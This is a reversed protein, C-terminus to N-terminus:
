RNERIYIAMEKGIFIRHNINLFDYPVKFSNKFKDMAEFVSFKQVGNLTVIIRLISCADGKCDGRSVRNIGDITENLEKISHEAIFKPKVINDYILQVEAQEIEVMKKELEIGKLDCYSSNADKICGENNLLYSGFNIFNRELLKKNIGIMVEEEKDTIYAFNPLVGEAGGVARWSTVDAAAAFWFNDKKRAIADAWRYWDNRESITKYAAWNKNVINRRAQADYIIKWDFEEHYWGSKNSSGHKQEYYVWHGICKIKTGTKPNIDWGIVEKKEADKGIETPKNTVCYSLLADKDRQFLGWTYGPDHIRDWQFKWLETGAPYDMLNKSAGQALGIYDIFPHDLMFIGHGLEHAATSAIEEKPKLVSSSGTGAFIFGFQEQHPMKGLLDAGTSLAPEPLIFLYATTPDPTQNNLTSIYNQVIAREEGTYDNSFAPSKSDQLRGDKDLDWDTSTYTPATTVTFTVGIQGYVKDLQSKIANQYDAPLANKVPILVLNFEKPAYSPLLLKGVTYKTAGDTYVAYIEQADGAPGGALTLSSNNADYNYEVVKEGVKPNNVFKIKSKDLNSSINLKVKVPVNPKAFQIPVRYQDSTTSPLLEYEREVVQKDRYEFKWEDFALTTNDPHKSFTVKGKVLNATYAPPLTNTPTNAPTYETKNVLTGIPTGNSATINGNSITIAPTNAPNGTEQPGKGEIVKGVDNGGAFYKNAENLVAEADAIVENVKGITSNMENQFKKLQNSVDQLGPLTIAEVIIKGGCFRDNADLTVNEFILKAEAYNAYPILCKGTTPSNPIIQFGAAMFSIGASPKKQGCTSLNFQIDTDTKGCAFDGGSSPPLPTTSFSALDSKPGPKSLNSNCFPTLEIEYTTNPQLNPITAQVKTEPLSPLSIATNPLTYWITVPAAINRYRLQYNIHSTAKTWSLVLETNAVSALALDSVKQCAGDIEKPNTLNFTARNSPSSSLGGCSVKIYYVYEANANLGTLTIRNKNLKEKKQWNAEPETQSAKLTYFLTYEEAGEIKDWALNVSTTTTVESVLNVPPFCDATRLIVPPPLFNNPTFNGNTTSSLNASCHYTISYSYETAKDLLLAVTSTPLNLSQNAYPPQQATAKPQFSFDYKQYIENGAWTLTFNTNPQSSGLLVKLDTAAPPACVTGQFGNQNTFTAGLKEGNSCTAYLKYVLNPKPEFTFNNAYITNANTVISGNDEKITYYQASPMFEWSIRKKNELINGNETADSVVIQQPGKECTKPIYSQEGAYVVKSKNTAGCNATIYIQYPKNNEISNPNELQNIALQYEQAPNIPTYTYSLDAGVGNAPKLAITYNAIADPDNAIPKASLYWSLNINGNSKEVSTKAMLPPPCIKKYKFTYVESIGNNGIYPKNINGNAEILSVRWAYEHNPVLPLDAQTLQYYPFPVKANVIVMGGKENALNTNMLAQNNAFANSPDLATNLEHNLDILQFQYQLVGSENPIYTQLHLPTWQFLINQIPMAEIEATNFPLNLLPAKAYQVWVSSAGLFPNSVPLSIDSAEVAVVAIYYLAEPMKISTNSSPQNDLIINESKILTEIQAPLLILPKNKELNVELVTTSELNPNVNFNISMDASKVSLGLKVKLSEKTPDTLIVKVQMRGLIAYDDLYPSYPPFVTTQVQVPFNFASQASSQNTFLVVLLMATMLSMIEKIRFINTTYFNAEKNKNLIAIFTYLFNM